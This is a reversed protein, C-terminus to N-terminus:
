ARGALTARLLAATLRDNAPALTDDEHISLEDSDWLMLTAALAGIGALTVCPLSCIRDLMPDQQLSIEAWVLDAATEEEITKASNAVNQRRRELVDFEACLRILEADSTEAYDAVSAAVGSSIGGGLIVAGAAAFLTRRRSAPPTIHAHEAM